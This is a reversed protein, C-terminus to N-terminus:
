FKLFVLTDGIWIVSNGGHCKVGSFYRGKKGAVSM